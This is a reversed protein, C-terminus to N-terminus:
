TPLTRDLPPLILKSAGTFHALPSVSADTFATAGSEGPKPSACVALKVAAVAVEVNVQRSADVAVTPTSRNSSLTDITGLEDGGGEVGDRNFTRKRPSEPM